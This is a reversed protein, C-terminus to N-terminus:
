TEPLSCLVNYKHIEKRNQQILTKNKDVTQIFLLGDKKSNQIEKEQHSSLVTTTTVTVTVSASTSASASASATLTIV